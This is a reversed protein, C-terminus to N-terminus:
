LFDKGSVWQLSYYKLRHTNKLYDTLTYTQRSDATADDTPQFFLWINLLISYGLNQM